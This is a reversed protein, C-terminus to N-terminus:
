NVFSYHLSIVHCFLVFANTVIVFQLCILIKDIAKDNMKTTNFERVKRVSIRCSCPELVATIANAVM